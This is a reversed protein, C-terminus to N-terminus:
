FGLADLVAEGVPIKNGKYPYAHMYLAPNFNIEIIAHNSASPAKKPDKIIMDVGCMKAKAKLAAKEAIKKYASPIQTTFDLPDGGTCVNSNERLYVKEGKKPISDFSYGKSKLIRAEEKGMRIYYCKPKYSKPDENKIKALSKITNIGDGVVNAPERNTIAVTKYNICLFRYEEGEIFEEVIISSSHTFAEKVAKEYLKQSNPAIIVVGIGFNTTTPKVVLKDKAVQPYLAFAENLKDFCYGKPVRIGVQTLLHKSVQKNEMILFSVYSDLSTKTAQKVYEQKKGKKLFLFNEEKDLVEVHIRRKLAARMVLQTSLELDEYGKIYFEDHVEKKRNDLLSQDKLKKMSNEFPKPISQSLAQKKHEKALSLHFALYSKSSEKLHKLLQGSSTLDADEIKKLQKKLCTQYLSTHHVEDLLQALPKMKCLLSEAFERFLFEKKGFSIKLKPDRGKLAVRNQIRPIWQKELATIAPSELFFCYLLFLHLFHLEQKEIGTYSFPDLDLVRAEVYEVGHSELAELPTHSQCVAKPRIRSYHENEIQLIHTNLQKARGKQDILGIRQYRSHPTSIAYRLDKLYTALSDFSIGIQNQLRSYYGYNSSRFSCAYPMYYTNKDFSQIERNKSSFFSHDVFPSSGFLYTNIFSYRLFNRILSFYKDSRFLSLSQGKKAFQKYFAEMLLPHFSFNYHCGSIAQINRGFRWALGQRYLTKDKGKNSLGFDALPLDNDSGIFPPMSNPWLLENHLHKHLHTHLKALFNLAKTESSFTPTILEPQNEAFDTSLYPHTLKHGFDNSHPTQSLFAKHDIRLSEKELGHRSQALLATLKNKKLFLSVDRFNWKM